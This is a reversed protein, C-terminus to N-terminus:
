GSQITHLQYYLGRKAILESHSGKEAIRGGNLVCIVDADQITSLRHAITICTRGQKANDLAEQVIKESETDLASTAEDLLLVKPNRVLARAIAIRQKQGGSLQTGKEGLKTNYGLPLSSVFNHINAQKAAELIEAQTVDRSNDGYAINEGITRSFLNPEQSVIGLHSRMSALTISKIDVGDLSVTGSTPDYFREILQIITSKGCGSAGVLAVTKGQQVYLDLDELVTVYRRTPYSFTIKAYEVNGEADFKQLVGEEDKIRPVRNFLDNVAKAANLGKELNPAFALANAISVTGMILAQAVKFVDGYPVNENKILKGGYYMCTAYAFFMLGRSLGLIASRGHTSKSNKRIQPVLEAIYLQHFIEECSLSVVTRINSIAEVAIKTSSQLSNKFDDNNGKMNRSQFFTAVIIVPFFSLAVLGLKWQYYMSLGLSLLLTAISNMIIGVRQGTAGQVQSAETALQSCLAGVGNSKRDFYGIEQKLMADFMQSRIRQTLKQGAVGFMYMQLFNSVGSLVGIAVFYLCYQTTRQRVYDDDPDSIDQMITGFIVAFLPMACGVSAAGISGLLLYFWEPSNMRLLSWISGKKVYEDNANETENDEQIYHNDEEDEDEVVVAKRTEKTTSEIVQNSQVQTMVLTHYEGELKMLEDHSGQEVVKGQSLVIIKDAGRITSLRHAVIITTCHQSASDLAAQVKAESNTDLASTAEDLLLISPSKLLARAIAIRQKQGGSLQAGREGVLTKYGEPLMKIFNHANAKKAANIIDEETADRNGYRINEEITTGFLVPEQSVVGILNRFWTLDLNRIDQGDLLVTGRDPDYFRQILQLVTSKGCGSSGVLAVTHGAEIDLDLEKLITVEKRSPYQFTVGRFSLSGKLNEIKQGNNKSLNITPLSDIIHFVKGGASRAQSFAEIYPSAMGFSQSGTMVSFFVTIMNGPTYIPDDWSRQKLMLTIGYWFALGYSSFIMFFLLGFSTGELFSRRINNNKAYILKEDYRQTEKKQGGFAIVTRISTLVEEAIAGAEGYADIEKKSVKTILFSLGGIIILTVPLSILCILALEWGRILALILSAFFTAQLSVFLPVKEGIGEEFRSLDEGMRSAFDGSQNMDYWTIDKNLLRKLYLSRLKFVQKIATYNFCQASVYGLVIIAAGIYLMNLAFNNIGQVFNDTAKECEEPGIM